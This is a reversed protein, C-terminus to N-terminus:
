WDRRPVRRRRRVPSSVLWAGQLAPRSAAREQLRREEAEMEPPTGQWLIGLSLWPRPRDLFVWRFASPAKNKTSPLRLDRPDLATQLTQAGWFLSGDHGMERLPALM